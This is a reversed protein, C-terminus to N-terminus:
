DLDTPEGRQAALWKPVYLAAGFGVLLVFLIIVLLVPLSIGGGESDVPGPTASAGPSPSAGASAAVTETPSASPEISPSVEPSPSPEAITEQPTEIPTLTPSPTPVPTPTAVPPIATVTLSVVRTPSSAAGDSANYSFADPGVYGATPTYGFSGDAALIVVGHSPNSVKVATLSDGDIDHDNRLVGPAGVNLTVNKVVSFSDAGATPADNVPTVTVEVTATTGLDGACAADALVEHMTYTFSNGAGSGNYNAAPSYTFSGDATWDLSGHLNSTDVSAVCLVNGDGATGDNGLVGPAAVDLTADEAVAYADDAAAPGPVAVAAGAAGLVLALAALTAALPRIM